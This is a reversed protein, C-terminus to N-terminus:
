ASSAPRLALGLSALAIVLAAWAVWTTIRSGAGASPAAISTSSAPAKSGAPGTWEVREGGEYTQFVPWAITADAKPNVAVFPLEVFRHAPLTGTWVAGVIRKASDTIVELRWGPVDAFTSVRVEAPFRIEIRTTAVDKENPVRLSYREYAGPASTKPYVVAHGFALGHVAALMAVVLSLLAAVRRARPARVTIPTM